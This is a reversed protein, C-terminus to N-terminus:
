FTYDILKALQVLERISPTKRVMFKTTAVAIPGMYTRLAVVLQWGGGVVLRQWGRGVALRWGGAVVLRWGIVAAGVALLWWGGVALRWRGHNFM